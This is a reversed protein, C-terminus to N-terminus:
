IRKSFENNCRPCKVIHKGKKNKVRLQARCSPCKIYRYEKREKFKRKTLTFWNKVRDFIKTFARNEICRKNINRSLARFLAYIIVAFMLLDLVISATINWVFINIVWLIWFLIYLFYNFKDNGYRGKMFIALRQMLGRMTNMRERIM